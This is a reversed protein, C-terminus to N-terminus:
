GAEDEDEDVDAEDPEDDPDDDDSPIPYIADLIVPSANQVMTFIAAESGGDEGGFIYRVNSKGGGGKIEAILVFSRFPVGADELAQRARNMANMRKGDLIEM